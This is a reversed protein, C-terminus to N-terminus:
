QVMEEMNPSIEFEVVEFRWRNGVRFGRYRNFLTIEEHGELYREITRVSVKLRAALEKKTLLTKIETINM